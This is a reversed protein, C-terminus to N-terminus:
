KARTTFRMLKVYIEPVNECKVVDSTVESLPGVTIKGGKLNINVTNLFNTGILLRYRLVTDSVVQVRIPYSHGDVTVKAEFEGLTTNGSSGVGDFRM